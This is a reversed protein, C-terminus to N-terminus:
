RISPDWLYYFGLRAGAAPAMDMGPLELRLVRDSTRAYPSGVYGRPRRWAIMSAARLGALTKAREFAADLDGVHDILGADAARLGSVIRGDTLETFAAESMGPRRTRVVQRFRQFFDDVMQQYIARQQDNMTSLPSGAAKNPGSRFSEVQVGIRGLAPEVSITRAIVGISGTVTTPYAVIEDAGLAVFCGGSAAVDMMLAVVPKGTRSRFRMLRRYMAETAVVTGGPSNIRLLVAKVHPDEAAARLQEDFRGVPHEGPELLAPRRANQIIGSVDVIAVQSRGAGPEAYVVESELSRDYGGGVTLTVPGCGALGIVLVLLLARMNM